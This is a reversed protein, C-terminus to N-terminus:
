HNQKTFRKQNPVPRGTPMQLNEKGCCESPFFCRLCQFFPLLILSPNFLPFVFRCALIGFHYGHSMQGCIQCLKQGGGRNAGDATEDSPSMEADNENEYGSGLGNGTTSEVIVSQTPMMAVLPSGLASPSTSISTISSTKILDM